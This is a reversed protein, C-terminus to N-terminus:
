SGVCVCALSNHFCTRTASHLMEIKVLPSDLIFMNLFSVRAMPKTSVSEAVAHAPSVLEGGLAGHLGPSVLEGGQEDLTITLPSSVEVKISRKATSVATQAISSM